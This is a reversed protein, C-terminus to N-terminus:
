VQMKALISVACEKDQLYAEGDHLLHLLRELEAGNLHDMLYEVVKVGFREGALTVIISGGDTSLLESILSDREPGLSTEYEPRLALDICKEVVNHAYKRCALTSVGCKIVESIVYRKNSMEGHELIHQLVYNGYRDQALRPVSQFIEQVLGRVQEQAHELLRMVVRCGNMHASANDAGWESVAQVIFAISTVPMDEVCVQMVHNGHMSKMCQTTCEKLGHILRERSEHVMVKVAKQVVRCGNSDLSLQKVHFSLQEAVVRKQQSSAVELLCLVFAHGYPHLSLSVLHPLAADFVIAQIEKTAEPV